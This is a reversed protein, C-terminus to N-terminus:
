WWLIYLHASITLIYASLGGSGAEGGACCIDLYNDEALVLVVGPVVMLHERPRLQVLMPLSVHQRARLKSVRGDGGGLSVSTAVGDAGM